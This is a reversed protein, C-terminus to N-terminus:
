LQKTTTFSVSIPLCRRLAAMSQSGEISHLGEALSSSISIRGCSQVKKLMEIPLMTFGCNRCFYKQCKGPPSAIDVTSDRPVLSSCSASISDNKKEPKFNADKTKFHMQIRKILEANNCISHRNQEQKQKLHEVDSARRSIKKLNVTVKTTIKKPTPNVVSDLRKNIVVVPPAQPTNSQFIENLRQISESAQVLCESVDDPSTKPFEATPTFFMETQTEEHAQSVSLPRPTFFIEDRPASSQRLLSPSALGQGENSFNTEIFKVAERVSTRVPVIINEEEVQSEKKSKDTERDWLSRVFHERDGDGDCQSVGLFGSRDRKNQIVDSLMEPMMPYYKKNIDANYRSNNLDINNVKVLPSKHSGDASPFLRINISSDSQSVNNSKSSKSTGDLDNRHFKISVNYQKRNGPQSIDPSNNSVKLDGGSKSLKAGFDSVRGGSPKKSDSLWANRRIKNQRAIPTKPLSYAGVAFQYASSDGVTDSECRKIVPVEHKNPLEEFSRSQDHLNSAMGRNLFSTLGVDDKGKKQRDNLEQVIEDMFDTKNYDQVIDNLEQNMKDFMNNFENIDMAPKPIEFLGKVSKKLERDEPAKMRKKLTSTREYIVDKDVKPTHLRNFEFFSQYMTSDTLSRRSAELNEHVEDAKRLPKKPAIVRQDEVSKRIRNITDDQLIEPQRTFSIIEAEIESSRISESIRSSDKQNLKQLIETTLANESRMQPDIEHRTFYIKEPLKDTFKANKFNKKKEMNSHSYIPVVPNHHNVIHKKKGEGASRIEDLMSIFELVDSMREDSNIRLCSDFIDMFCSSTKDLLPLKADNTKYALILEELNYVVFPVCHNLTEWLLLALSFTDSRTSPLVNKINGEISPILLEPAQYYHMAFMRRYVSTYPLRYDNEGELSSAKFSSLSTRNYFHQKSLKFYKEATSTEAPVTMILSREDEGIFKPHFIKGISARPLIETTLEFSSLKVAFPNERVLVAHSSINSHIFGREHLYQTAGAIQM